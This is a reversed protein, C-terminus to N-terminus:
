APPPLTAEDPELVGPQLARRPAGVGGGDGRGDDDDQFGEMTRRYRDQLKEDPSPSARYEDKWREKPGLFTAAHLVSRTGAIKETRCCAAYRGAAAILDQPDIGERLRADWQQRALKKPNGGARKPYETWFREFACTTSSPEVSPERHHNPPDDRVGKKSANSGGEQVPYGGKLPFLPDMKVGRGPQVRYCPVLGRSPRGGRVIEGTRPDAVGHLELIDKARLRQNIRKISADTYGTKWAIRKRSPYAIGDDNAHDAHALTVLKENPPLDLAWVEAMIKVSV